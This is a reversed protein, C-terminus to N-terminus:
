ATFTDPIIDGGSSGDSTLGPIPNGAADLVECKYGTIVHNTLSALAALVAAIGPLVTLVLDETGNQAPTHQLVANSFHAGSHLSIRLKCGPHAARTDSGIQFHITDGARVPVQRPSPGFATAGSPVYNLVVTRPQPM